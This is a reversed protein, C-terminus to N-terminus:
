ITEVILSPHFNSCTPPMMKLLKCNNVTNEKDGRDRTLILFFINQKLQDVDPRVVLVAIVVVRLEQAHHRALVGM